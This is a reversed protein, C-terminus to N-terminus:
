DKCLTDKRGAPQMLQLRRHLTHGEDEGEGGGEQLRGRGRPQGQQSSQEEVAEPSGGM